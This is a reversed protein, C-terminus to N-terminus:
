KRIKVKLQYSGTSTCTTGNAESACKPSNCNLALISNEKNLDKVEAKWDNCAKKWSDRAGKTLVNPEGQIEATSTMIDFDRDTPAVTGKTIQITTSQDAPIDHIAATQALAMSSGLLLTAIMMAKM